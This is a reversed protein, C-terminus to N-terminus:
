PVGSTWMTSVSVCSYQKGTMLDKELRLKVQWNSEAVFASKLSRTIKIGHRSLLKKVLPPPRWEGQVCDDVDSSV